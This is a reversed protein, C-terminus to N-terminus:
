IYYSVHEVSDTKGDYFIFPPRTFKSPMPAQEIEGSFLSRAVKRLVRSMADMAANRPWWGELSIAGRDAYEWSWDRHRHSDSQYSAEGHSSGISASGEAHKKRNRRRCRGRAELKLDRVLRHLCELEKDRKDFRKHRSARSMSWYTQFLGEEPGSHEKAQKYRRDEDRKHRM